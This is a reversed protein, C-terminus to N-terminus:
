PMATGQRRLRGALRVLGDALLVILIPELPLRYKVGTIPGTVAIMYAAVVALVAVSRWPWAGRLAAVTGGLQFLRALATGALGAAMVWFFPTGAADKLYNTLKAVATGGPTEYFSPRTMHQVPPAAVLAPSLLNIAAGTAWARAMVGVGSELMAEKALASMTASSEFPNDPLSDRGRAALRAALRENMLAKTQEPPIGAGYERTLPVVWYLAHVGTQSSMQWHGAVMANRALWPTVVAVAVALLAGAMAARRRWGRGLLALLLPMVAILIWPTPRVMTSAGLWLGALAAQRLCNREAARLSATLFLTFPLLFLSDSLVQTANIILNPALAAAVGAPRALQPRLTGALRAIAVCTAADILIQVLVPALPSPGAVLRMAALFLIYGPVREVFPKPAAGADPPLAIVGHDALQQAPLEFAPSDPQRLSDPGDYALGLYALRVTVALIFVIWTWRKGM